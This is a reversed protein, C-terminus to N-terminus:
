NLKVILSLIITYIFFLYFYNRNMVLKLLKLSLYGVIFTAIFAIIYIPYFDFDKFTLIFAGIMAPIAVLFGYDFAEGKKIRLILATAIVAGSRSLGPLVAFGQVIGIVIAQKWTISKEGSTFKTALLLISTIILWNSVSDVTRFSDIRSNFWLAIVATFFSSIVIYWWWNKRDSDTKKFVSIVIEKIQSKFFLLIVALSALHLFVDFSLNAEEIHLWKEFLVLHGSSSIPLWESIGQAFSLILTQFVEM